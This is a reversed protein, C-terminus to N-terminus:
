SWQGYAGSVTCALVGQGCQSLSPLHVCSRQHILFLRVTKYSDNSILYKCFPEKPLSGGFSETGDCPKCHSRNTDQILETTMITM